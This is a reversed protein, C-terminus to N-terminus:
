RGEGYIRKGIEKRQKNLLLAYKLKIQIQKSLDRLCARAQLLAEKPRGYGIIAHSGNGLRLCIAYHGDIEQVYVDQGQFMIAQRILKEPLDVGTHEFYTDTPKKVPM